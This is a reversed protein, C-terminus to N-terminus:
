PLHLLIDGHFKAGNQDRQEYSGTGLWRRWTWRWWLTGDAFKCTSGGAPNFPAHRSVLHLRNVNCFVVPMEQEVAATARDPDVVETGLAAEIRVINKDGM